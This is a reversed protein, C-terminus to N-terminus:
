RDWRARMLRLLEQLEGFLSPSHFLAPILHYLLRVPSPHFRLNYCLSAYVVSAPAQRTITAEEYHHEVYADPICRSIWGHHYLLAGFELYSSGYTFAEAFRLGRDFIERPYITSGDAIGWNNDPNSIGIGVGSPHLQNARASFYHRQGHLHGEEGCTWIASPDQEVAKFCQAFHGPPFTHDDDMTRIHTGTCALAAANRNAYLGRRPGELHRHGSEEAIARVEAAYEPNSDDAIVVEAPQVSQAALSELTRRLQKPRNRTVLAVSLRIPTSATM